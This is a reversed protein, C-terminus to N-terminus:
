NEIEYTLEEEVKWVNYKEGANVINKNALECVHVADEETYFRYANSLGCDTAFHKRLVYNGNERGVNEVFFYGVYDSHNAIVWFEESEWENELAM